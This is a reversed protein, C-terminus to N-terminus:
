ALRKIGGAGLGGLRSGSRCGREDPPERHARQVEEVRAAGVGPNQGRARHRREKRQAREERLRGVAGGGIEVAAEAAGAQHRRCEAVAVVGPLGHRHLGVAPDQDGPAPRDPACRLEGHDAVVRRAAEVGGEAGAAHHGVREPRPTRVGVGDGHLRVAADHDSPRRSAGHGNGPEQGVPPRVRPEVPVAAHEHAEPGPGDVHGAAHRDGGAPLDHGGSGGLAAPTVLARDHAQVGAPREVGAEVAVAAHQRAVGVAGRRVHNSNFPENLIRVDPHRELARALTTSGCRMHGFVIFEDIAAPSPDPGRRRRRGFPIRM